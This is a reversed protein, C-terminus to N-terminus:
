HNVHKGKKMEEFANFPKETKLDNPKCKNEYCRVWICMEQMNLKFTKGYFGTYGNYIAKIINKIPVSPFITKLADSQEFITQPTFNTESLFQHAVLINRTLDDNMIERLTIEKGTSQSVELNTLHKSKEM